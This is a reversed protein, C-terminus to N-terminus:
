RHREPRAAGAEDPFRYVLTYARFNFLLTFLMYGADVGWWTSRHRSTCRVFGCSSMASLLCASLDVIRVLAALAGPTRTGRRLIKAYPIWYLNCVLDGHHDFSCGVDVLDGRRGGWISGDILTLGTFLV